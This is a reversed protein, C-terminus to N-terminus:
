SALGAPQFWTRREETGAGLTCTIASIDVTANRIEAKGSNMQHPRMRKLQGRSKTTLDKPRPIMPMNQDTIKRSITQAM